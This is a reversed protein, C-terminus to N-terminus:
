LSLVIRLKDEVERMVALSVVGRHSVLRKRSIARVDECKIYCRDNVGGEPPEIQVHLPNGKGKTTVPVIIVMDADGHNYLDASVILAPRSGGQEHGVVPELNVNWVEGRSPAPV